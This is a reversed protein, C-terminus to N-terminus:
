TQVEVMDVEIQDLVTALLGIFFLKEFNYKANQQMPTSPRLNFPPDCVTPPCFMNPLGNNTGIPETNSVEASSSVLSSMFSPLVGWPMLTVREPSMGFMYEDYGEEGPPRGYPEIYFPPLLPPWWIERQKDEPPEGMREAPPLTRPKSIGPLGHTLIYAATFEMSQAAGPFYHKFGGYVERIFEGGAQPDFPMVFVGAVGSLINFFQSIWDWVQSISM